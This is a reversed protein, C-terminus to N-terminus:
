SHRTLLNRGKRTLNGDPDIFGMRAALSFLEDPHRSPIHFSKAGYLFELVDAIDAELRQNIM